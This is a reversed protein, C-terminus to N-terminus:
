SVTDLLQGARARLDHLDEVTERKIIRGERWDSELQEVLGQLEAALAAIALSGVTRPHQGTETRLESVTDMARGKRCLQVGAPGYFRDLSLGCLCNEGFRPIARPTCRGPAM